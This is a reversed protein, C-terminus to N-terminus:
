IGRRALGRDHRRCPRESRGCAAIVTCAPWGQPCLGLSAVGRSISIKSGVPERGKDFGQMRSRDRGREDHTVNRPEPYADRLLRSPTSGTEGLYPTNLAEYEPQLELQLEDTDLMTWRPGRLGTVQV